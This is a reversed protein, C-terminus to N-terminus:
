PHYLQWKLGDVLQTLDIDVKANRCNFGACSDMKPIHLQFVDLVQIPIVPILRANLNRTLYPRAGQRLFHILCSYGVEM